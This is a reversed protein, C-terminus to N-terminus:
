RHIARLIKRAADRGSRLAGNVTGNADISTAEGAFYLTSQITRALDRRATMGGARVYAYAGGAHPDTSWNHYHSRVFGVKLTRLSIGLLESFERLAIRELELPQLGVLRDAPEGGCWATVIPWHMPFATWWTSFARTPDHVMSTEPPLRKSWVDGRFELVLKVVPGMGLFSAAREVSPIRPDFRLAADARLHGVPTTVLLRKARYRETTKGHTCDVEVSGAKWRIASVIRELAIRNRFPRALTELLPGYGRFLRETRYNKAHAILRLAELTDLASVDPVRAADFGQVFSRLSEREAPDIGRVRALAKEFTEDTRPIKFRHALEQLGDFFLPDENWKGHERLARKTSVEFSEAGLKRYLELESDPLGHIFEAGFEVPFDRDVTLTCARGGIRDRAELIKFPIRAEALARGAGLGAAGAGIVLVETPRVRATKKM